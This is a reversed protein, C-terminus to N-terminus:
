FFICFLKKKLLYFLYIAVSCDLVPWNPGAMLRSFVWLNMFSVVPWDLGAQAPRAWGLGAQLKVLYKQIQALGPWGLGAWAPWENGNKSILM